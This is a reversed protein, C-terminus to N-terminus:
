VGLFWSNLADAIFRLLLMLIIPSIDIGNLNPLLKALARRIPDLLPNFVQGLGDHVRRVLPNYRNVIDLRMLVDLVLWIILGLNILSIISNILHIFPNLM